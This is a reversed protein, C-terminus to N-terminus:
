TTFYCCNADSRNFDNEKEFLVRLGYRNMVGSLYFTHPHIIVMSKGSAPEGVPRMPFVM